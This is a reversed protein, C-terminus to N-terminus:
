SVAFPYPPQATPPYVAGDCIIRYEINDFSQGNLDIISQYKNPAEALSASISAEQQANNLIYQVTCSSAAQAPGASMCNNGPSFTYFCIQLATAQLVNDNDPDHCVLVPVNNNIPPWLYMQMETGCTITYKISNLNSMPVAPPPIHAILNYVNQENAPVNINSIMQPDEGQYAVILDATCPGNNVFMPNVAGCQQSEQELLVFSAQFTQQPAQGVVNAELNLNHCILVNAPPPPAPPTCFECEFSGSAAVLPPLAAGRPQARAVFSEAPVIQASISLPYTTDADFFGFNLQVPNANNYNQAFQGIQVSGQLGDALVPQGSADVVQFTVMIDVFSPNVRPQCQVCLDSIYLAPPVAAPPAGPPSPECAAPQRCGTAEVQYTKLVDFDANKPTACWEAVLVDGDSLTLGCGFLSKFDIRHAQVTVDDLAAGDSDCALTTAGALQKPLGSSYLQLDSLAGVGFLPSGPESQTYITLDGLPTNGNEDQAQGLTLFLSNACVVNSESACLLPYQGGRLCVNQKDDDDLSLLCAGARAPREGRLCTKSSLVCVPQQFQVPLPGGSMGGTLNVSVPGKIATQLCDNEVHVNMQGHVCANVDFGDDCAPKVEVRGHVCAEVTNEICIPLPNSKTANLAVNFVADGLPEIAVPLACGGAAAVKFVSDCTPRIKQVKASPPTPDPPCFSPTLRDCPKARPFALSGNAGGGSSFSRNSM